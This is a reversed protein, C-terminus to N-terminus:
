YWRWFMAYFSIWKYINISGQAIFWYWVPIIEVIQLM